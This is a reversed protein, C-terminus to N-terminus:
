DLRNLTQCFLKSQLKAQGILMEMGGMVSCGHDIARQMIKTIKPNYIIDYVLESGDFSYFNLPDVDVHPSMGLGTTQVIVHSYERILPNSSEELPAWVQGYEEALEQAKSTTRNLILLKAGAESLTYAIGRAAGGAGILTIKKGHLDSCKLKELLPVLFGPGDSNEGFWQQDKRYLTNCAGIAKVRDSCTLGNMIDVKYPITVSLGNLKINQDIVNWCDITPLPFPLYVADLNKDQFWQNHIEPSKSHGLSRGIIGFIATSSQIDKFRYREVMTKPDIHGPAASQSTLSSCFSMYGGWKSCLIRSFLGEAGMALLINGEVHGSKVAGFFAEYDSKSKITVAAKNIIDSESNKDSLFSRLNSPTGTFDHFSRIIRKGRETALQFLDIPSDWELDVLDFPKSLLERLIHLREEEQDIRFLGGDCEKRCTLIIPLDVQKFFTDWDQELPTTLFDVRLEALDIWPRNLEIEAWNQELSSSTLCLCIKTM